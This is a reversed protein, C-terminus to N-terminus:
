PSVGCIREFKVVSKLQKRVGGGYTSYTNYHVVNVLRNVFDDIDTTGRLADGYHDAYFDASAQLSSFQINPGGGHTIGFLNNLPTNHADLWGSELSSHAIILNRDVGIRDALSDLLGLNIDFFRRVNKPCKDGMGSSANRGAGSLGGDQQFFSALSGV